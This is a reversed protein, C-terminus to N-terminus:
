QFVLAITNLPVLPAPQKTSMDDRDRGRCHESLAFTASPSVYGEGVRLTTCSLRGLHFRLGLVCSTLLVQRPYLFLVYRPGLLINQSM